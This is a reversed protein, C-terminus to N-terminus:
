DKKRQAQFDPLGSQLLWVGTKDDLKWRQPDSLTRLILGDKAYYQIEAIQFFERRDKYFSSQSVEYDVVQINKYRDFDVEQDKAIEPDVFRYAQKFESARISNRYAETFLELKERSAKESIAACGLPLCVILSILLILKKKLHPRM